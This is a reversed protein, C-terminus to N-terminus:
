GEHERSLVICDEPDFSIFVSAGIDIRFNPPVLCELLESGVRVRVAQSEGLFIREEIAGTWENDRQAHQKSVAISEPRIAIILPKDGPVLDPSRAVLPGCNTKFEQKNEALGTRVVQADLFNASGIFDAIFKNKPRRYIDTPSGVQVVRGGAIVAIQDSMALAESQDHTVYILSINLDRQLRKMEFRMRHRLKADLNSLPEDLLLLRPQKVLARALALRQQQGGSLRTANREALDLLDVTDLVKLTRERIDAKGLGKESELAFAVNQFATMHPWIAYSQFVMGFARKQPPVHIKGKSSYLVESGFSIEGEDPRELGAIARLTTSKGGGSPGLLTFISGVPVEFSVDIVAAVQEGRENRYSKHLQKVILM